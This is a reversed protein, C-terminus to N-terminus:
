PGEAASAFFSKIRSFLGTEQSLPSPPPFQCNSQSHQQFDKISIFKSCKSCKETRSGCYDEHDPIDVMKKRLQCYQCPKLRHLCDIQKHRALNQIEMIEGCSCRIQRHTEEIHAEKDQIRIIRDCLGCTFHNRRCFAEHTAQVRKPIQKRCNSCEITEEDESPSFNSLLQTSKSISSSSHSSSSSPLATPLSNMGRSEMFKEDGSRKEHSDSFPHPHHLLSQSDTTSSPLSDSPMQIELRLDTDRIDIALDPLTKVITFTYLTQDFAVHLLDHTQLAVYSRLVSELAEKPQSMSLFSTPDHPQLTVLEGKPLSVMRVSIIDGDCVRCNRLIWSPILAYGELADFTSVGAYTKKLHHSQLTSEHLSSQSSQSSQSSPFDSKLITKEEDDQHHHNQTQKIEFILPFEPNSAKTIEELASPPLAMKGGMETGIDDFSMVRYYQIFGTRQSQAESSSFPSRISPDLFSFKEDKGQCADRIKAVIDTICSHVTHIPSWDGGDCLLSSNFVGGPGLSPITWPLFRPEVLRLKPPAMPYSGDFQLEFILDNVDFQSAYLVLQTALPEPFRNRVKV